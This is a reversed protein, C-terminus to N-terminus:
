KELRCTDLAQLYVRETKTDDLWYYGDECTAIERQQYKYELWDTLIWGLVLGMVFGLISVGIDELIRKTKESMEQRSRM